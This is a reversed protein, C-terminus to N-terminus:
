QTPIPRTSTPASSATKRSRASSARLTCTPCHPLCRTPTPHKPPPQSTNPQLHTRTPTVIKPLLLYQVLGPCLLSYHSRRLHNGAKFAAPMHIRGTRFSGSFNSVLTVQTVVGVSTAWAVAGLWHLPLIMCHSYFCSHLFCKQLATESLYVRSLEFLLLCDEDTWCETWFQLVGLGSLPDSGAANAM